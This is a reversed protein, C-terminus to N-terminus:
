RKATEKRIPPAMFEMSAPNKVHESIIKDIESFDTQTLKWGLVQEIQELQEKKRAGWLSINVHKDLVWRIALAILPKHYKEEVWKKLAETCKLYQSFHPEKFKPDMGKRLDDGKFERSKSMKGSLLGRCLGSYGIIAIGEKTCYPLIAKEADREFLNFPPQCTHIPADKRFQNMEEITYNSVGIARIKGSELLEALTEATESQSTTPDPWHVQYLDIYDVKLRRLSDDVEKLISARRSDRFVNDTEQNLGFKTAIVIQDRKGSKKIAKGVIEESTGKGYAPATDIFTIGKEIALLITDIAEKENSGGWLSGGISWTGLGIRSVKKSINPIKTFEM